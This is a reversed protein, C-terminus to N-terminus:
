AMYIYHMTINDSLWNVHFKVNIFHVQREAYRGFKMASDKDTKSIYANLNSCVCVYAYVSVIIKDPGKRPYPFEWFEAMKVNVKELNFAVSM